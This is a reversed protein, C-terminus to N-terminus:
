AATQSAAFAEGAATFSVWMEGDSESTTILGAKKLQTLNGREQKSGGVNGGVLPMGSWNGRDNWYAMFLELSKETLNPAATQSANAEAELRALKDKEAEILKRREAEAKNVLTDGGNGAPVVVAGMKAAVEQAAAQGKTVVGAQKALKRATPKTGPKDAAIANMQTIELSERGTKVAAPTSADHASDSLL